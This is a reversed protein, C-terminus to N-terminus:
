DNTNYRVCVADVKSWTSPKTKNVKAAAQVCSQENPFEITEISGGAGGGAAAVFFIILYWM